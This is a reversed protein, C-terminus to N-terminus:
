GRAKPFGRQDAFPQGPAPSRCGPQGQVCPVVVGCAKQCVQDSSQLCNRGSNSCPHQTHEGGRLWRWGFRQQRGQEIVYGGTSAVQIIQEFVHRKVDILLVSSVSNTGHCLQDWVLKTPIVRM